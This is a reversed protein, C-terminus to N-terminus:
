SAVRVGVQYHRLGDEAFHEFPNWLGCEEIRLPVLGLAPADLRSSEFAVSFRARWPSENGSAVAAKSSGRRVSALRRPM